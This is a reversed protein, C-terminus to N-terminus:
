AYAHSERDLVLCDPILIRHVTPRRSLGVDILVRELANRSTLPVAVYLAAPVGRSTLRGFLGLQRRTHTTDVDEYSKAEGLAWGASDLTVGVVDPRYGGMNSPAPLANRMGGQPTPGDYRTLVFGDREM